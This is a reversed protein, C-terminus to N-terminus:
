RRAHQYRNRDRGRIIDNLVLKQDPPTLFRIVHEEGASLRKTVEQVSLALSNDLKLRNHWNYIFTKGKEEHNKRHYDLKENTDFAYYAKGSQLLQEAFKQYLHKRQSQRYPGFPGEKGPGEDFPIGCWNLSDIIYQEAGDVYRNHDTDEIRLYLNVGLQRPLFTISFHPVYAGLTYPVPQVQRM